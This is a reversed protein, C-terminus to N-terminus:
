YLFSHIMIINRFLVKLYKTQNKNLSHICKYFLLYRMKNFKITYYFQSVLTHHYEHSDPPIRGNENDM